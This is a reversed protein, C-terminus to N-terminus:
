NAILPGLTLGQFIETGNCSCFHKHISVEADLKIFKTDIHKPALAKLHKDMIRFSDISIVM